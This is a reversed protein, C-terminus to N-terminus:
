LISSQLPKTILLPHFLINPRTCNSLEHNTIIQKFFSQLDDTLYTRLIKRFVLMELM